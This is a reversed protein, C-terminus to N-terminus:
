FGGLPMMLFGHLFGKSWKIKKAGSKKGIACLFHGCIFKVIAVLIRNSIFFCNNFSRTKSHWRKRVLYGHGRGYNYERSANTEPEPHLIQLTPEIIVKFKNEIARAVFDFEECSGYDAGVGMDEDFKIKDFVTKRVIMGAASGYDIMRLNLSISHTKVRTTLEGFQNLITSHAIGLGENKLSFDDFLGFFDRDFSCDDDLFILWQGSCLDVGINRNRSLGRQAQHSYVVNDWEPEILIDRTKANQDV